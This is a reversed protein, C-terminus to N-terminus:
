DSNYYQRAGLGIFPMARQKQSIATQGAHSSESSSHIETLPIAVSLSLSTPPDSNGALGRCQDLPIEGSVAKAARDHHGRGPFSKFILPLM